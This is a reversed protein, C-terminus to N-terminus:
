LQFLNVLEINYFDLFKYLKQVAYIKQINKIIFKGYQLDTMFVERLLLLEDEPASTSSGFCDNEPWVERASRLLLVAQEFQGDRLMRHLRTM